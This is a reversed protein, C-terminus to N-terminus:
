EPLFHVEEQTYTLTQHSVSIIEKIQLIRRIEILAQYSELM